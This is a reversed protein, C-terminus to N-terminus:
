APLKIIFPPYFYIDELFGVGGLDFALAFFDALGLEYM